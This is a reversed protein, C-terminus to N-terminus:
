RGLNCVVAMPVAPFPECSSSSKIHVNYDVLAVVLFPLVDLMKEELHIFALFEVFDGECSKITQFGNNKLSAHKILM